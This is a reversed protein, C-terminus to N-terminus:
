TGLPPLMEMTWPLPKGVGPLHTFIEKQPDINKCELRRSGDLPCLVNTWWTQFREVARAVYLLWRKERLKSLTEDRADSLEAKADWIGFLGDTYGVDVKLAYIAHLLKLHALCTEPTPLKTPTDSLKLSSFASSLEAVSPGGAGTDQATYVPPLEGNGPIAQTFPPPPSASDQPTPSFDQKKDSEKRSLKSALKERLPM